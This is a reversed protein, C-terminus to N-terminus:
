HFFNGTPAIALYLAAAKFDYMSFTAGSKSLSEFNTILSGTIPGVFHFGSPPSLAFSSLNV